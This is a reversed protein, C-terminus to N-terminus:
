GSWNPPTRRCPFARPVAGVCRAKPPDAWPASWRRWPPKPVRDPGPRVAMACCWSPPDRDRGSGAAQPQHLHLRPRRRRAGPHLRAAAPQAGARPLLDARRTHDAAGEARHRARAIEVMQRQGIQLHGVPADVNIGHGPFVEDLAARARARYARRWGPVVRAAEPAELFFNEAVSLNDCLSLEQHVIRIGGAQALATDYIGPDIDIGGIEITGADTRTVGCLIRMLTSKGAGNGGVLGLVEGREVVLDIRDNAQTPGFAKCIGALRAVSAHVRPDGPRAARNRPFRTWPRELWGRRFAGVCRLGLEPANQTTRFAATM